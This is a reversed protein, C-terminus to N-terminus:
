QGSSLVLRNPGSLGSPNWVAGAIFPDSTPARFANTVVPGNAGQPGTRGTVGAPGTAGAAGTSGTPGSPGQYGSPGTPGAGWFSPGTPGVGTSGTPGTVGTLAVPGTRGAAGTPGYINKDNILDVVTKLVVPIRNDDYTDKSATNPDLIGESNFVGVPM